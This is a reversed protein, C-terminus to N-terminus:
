GPTAISTLWPFGGPLHILRFRERISYWSTLPFPPRTLPLHFRQPAKSRHGYVIVGPLDITANAFAVLFHRVDM